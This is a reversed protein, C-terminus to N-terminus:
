CRRLITDVRNPRVNRADTTVTEADLTRGQGACSRPRKASPSARPPSSPCRATVTTSFLGLRHISSACGLCDGLAYSLTNEAIDIEGVRMTNDYISTSLSGYHMPRQISHLITCDLWSVRGLRFIYVHADHMLTRAVTLLNTEEINSKRSKM